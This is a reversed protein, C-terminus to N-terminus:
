LHLLPQVGLHVQADDNDILVRSLNMSNKLYEAQDQIFEEYKYPTKFYSFILNKKCLSFNLNEVYEQFSSWKYFRPNEVLNDILPNLHIYRSVHILQEDNEITVAKFRGQFLCGVRRYKQNFYQTYANTLQKLFKSVGDNISQSVLLHFHNPMLCFCLLDIKSSLNKNYLRPPFNPYKKLIEKLPQLYAVLYYLFIRYDQEDLFIERKEVGRNFVHYFGGEVFNRIVNKSPM